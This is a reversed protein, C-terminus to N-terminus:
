WNVTNLIGSTCPQWINSCDKLFLSNYIIMFKTVYLIRTLINEM